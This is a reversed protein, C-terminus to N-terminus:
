NSLINHAVRKLSYIDGGWRQETIFTLPHIEKGIISKSDIALQRVGVRGVGFYRKQLNKKEGMEGKLKESPHEKERM